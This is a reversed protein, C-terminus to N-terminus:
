RRDKQTTVPAGIRERMAQRIFQSVTRDESAAARKIADHLDTPM